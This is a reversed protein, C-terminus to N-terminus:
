IFRLRFNDLVKRLPEPLRALGEKKIEAPIGFFPEAISCAIAALTDADGGLSVANRACDEFSEAELFCCIAQPVTKQCTENFAYDARIDDLSFDLDYYESQIHCKIEDKGRLKRALYVCAATAQAGKIGEPHGHTPMASERAYFEAEELSRAIYAVPSVRMASGNGFSPRPMPSDSFLWESFMAGYSEYPYERGFIRLYDNAYKALPPSRGNECFRMVAAAIACTMVTDDTFVSAKTFLDFSKSKSPNFEFRSGIIDGIIAGLM